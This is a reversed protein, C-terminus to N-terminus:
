EWVYPTEQYVYYNLWNMFLLTAHAKWRNVPILTDGDERFYHLPKKVKDHKLLDREYEQKLTDTDYEPHGTLFVQKDDDSVILCVGAEESISLIKLNPTNKLQETNIDTHRSHPVYYIEDFGRVLREKKEKVIHEFVGFKKEPLKIKEIGYHHYLGAQAGWCIHLTSTVNTKSWDLINQLEKWYSVEEFPLHEIPAGTIIMGDFKKHRISEFSTYFEDLHERSTNKPTHTNPILFTFYVQLPSNGLMRLLQTETQIKKPMLNLIVINLPRIDQKFARTEDMVFINESELIQKAPLHIPINIPM